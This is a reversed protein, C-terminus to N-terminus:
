DYVRFVLISINIFDEGSLNSEYVGFLQINKHKMLEHRINIFIQGSLDAM